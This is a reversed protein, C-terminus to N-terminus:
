AWFEDEARQDYAMGWFEVAKGGSLHWVHTSILDVRRGSREATEHVLAVAHTDNALLDHVEIRSTGGSLEQLRAFFAFVQEKGKLDGSLPGNGANHWTIDDAFIENVTDIDGASYAAYGRRLLQENPHDSM